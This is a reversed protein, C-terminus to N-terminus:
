IGAKEEGQEQIRSNLPLATPISHPTPNSAISQPNLPKQERQLDIMIVSEWVTQGQPLQPYKNIPATLRVMM